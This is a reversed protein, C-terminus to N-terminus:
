AQKTPSRTGRKNAVVVVKADGKKSKVSKAPTGSRGRAKVAVKGKNVVKEKSSSASKGAGARVPSSRAEAGRAARSNSRANAKAKAPMKELVKQTLNKILIDM